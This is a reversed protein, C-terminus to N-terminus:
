TAHAPPSGSSISRSAPATAEISMQKELRSIKPRGGRKRAAASFPVTGTRSQVASAIIWASRAACCFRGMIGNWTGVPESMIARVGPALVISSGSEPADIPAM